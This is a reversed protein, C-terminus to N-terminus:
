EDGAELPTAPMSGLDLAKGATATIPRAGAGGLALQRGGKSAALSYRVGPVLPGFTLSGHADTTVPKRARSAPDTTRDAAGDEAWLYVTAGTLPKEDAM